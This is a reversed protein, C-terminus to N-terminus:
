SLKAVQKKFSDLHKISADRLSIFVDKVDEPIDQELFLDYM